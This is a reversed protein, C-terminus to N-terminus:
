NGTGSSGGQAHAGQTDRDTHPHPPGGHQGAVGGVETPLSPHRDGHERRDEGPTPFSQRHVVIVRTGVQLVTHSPPFNLSYSKDKVLDKLTIKFM